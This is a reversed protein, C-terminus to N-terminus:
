RIITLFLDYTNNNGGSSYRNCFYMKGATGGIFLNIKENVGLSNSISAEATTTDVDPNVNSGYHLWSFNPQSSYDVPSTDHISPSTGFDIMGIFSLNNLQPYQSSGVKAILLGGGNLGNEDDSPDFTVVTNYPLSIQYRFALNDLNVQQAALTNTLGNTTTLANVAAQQAALMNSEATM